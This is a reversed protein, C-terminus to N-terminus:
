DAKTVKIRCAPDAIYVRGQGNSHLTVPGAGEPVDKVELPHGNSASNLSLQCTSSTWKLVKVSVAGPSEFVDTDGDTELWTRPLEAAGAGNEHTVICGPDSTEYHFTGFTQMQYSRVGYIGDWTRRYGAENTLIVQCGIDAGGDRSTEDHIVFRWPAQATLSGTTTGSGDSSSDSPNRTLLVAAVVAAGAVVAAAAV